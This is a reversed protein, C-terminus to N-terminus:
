EIVLKQFSSNSDQTLKVLYTGKALNNFFIKEEPLCNSKEWVKKGQLDYFEINFTANDNKQVIIFNQTPNPYISFNTKNIKTIGLPTEASVDDIFVYGKGCNYSTASSFVINIFDPTEDPVIVEIPITIETYEEISETTTFDGEAVIINGLNDDHKILFVHCRMTDVIGEEPNFKVWAKVNYPIETFPAGGDVIRALDLDTGGSMILAMISDINFEGLQCIGPIDISNVGFTITQRQLKMAYSGSHADDSRVGGVYNVPIMGMIMGNFSSTWSVAETASEWEEFGRNPITSQASASIFIVIFSLSILIKKM